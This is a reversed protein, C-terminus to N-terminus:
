AEANAIAELAPDDRLAEDVLLRTAKETRAQLQAIFSRRDLGPPIPELFEIVARGPRCVLGRRPWFLGTNLAVPVCPAKAGAYVRAIGAKYDPPAGVPRRTGEPFIIVTRGEGLVETTRQVVQALAAAGTKRDIAIQGARLMYWGFLPVRTLERKLVFTYDHLKPLFAFTELASQHKAAIIVAGQPLNHLGRFEVRVGCILELLWLSLRAWVKGMAFITSRPLLLTPLMVILILTMVVRFLIAFVLSRVILM